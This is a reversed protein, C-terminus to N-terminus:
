DMRSDAYCDIGAQKLVAAYATAFKEKRELSQNFEWVSLVAGKHYSSVRAGAHKVFAKAAATRADRVIVYAFGCVGDMVPAYAKVVRSTDDLPNERQVVQMPVPVCANGAEMGAAHARNFLAAYDVAPGSAVKKKLVAGPLTSLKELAAAKDANALKLLEVAEDRSLSTDRCDYGTACFLAFSVRPAIDKLKM